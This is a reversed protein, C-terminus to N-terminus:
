GAAGSLLLTALLIDGNEDVHELELAFRRHRAEVRAVRARAEVDGAPLRLTVECESGPELVEGGAEVMAGAYSLNVVEGELVRDGQRVTIPARLVGRPAKRREGTTPNRTEM